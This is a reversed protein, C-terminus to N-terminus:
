KLGFFPLLYAAPSDGGLFLMLTNTLTPCKQQLNEIVCSCLSIIYDSLVASVCLRREWSSVSM